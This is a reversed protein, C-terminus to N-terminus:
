LRSEIGGKGTEEEDRATGDWLCIELDPERGEMELSVDGEGSEVAAEGEGRGVGEMVM